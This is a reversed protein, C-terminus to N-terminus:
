LKCFKAHDRWVMILKICTVSLTEGDSETRHWRLLHTGVTRGQTDGRGSIKALQEKLKRPIGRTRKGQPEMKLWKSTHHQEPGEATNTWGLDMEKQPDVLTSPTAQNAALAGPQQHLKVMLDRSIKTQMKSSLSYESTQHPMQACHRQIM